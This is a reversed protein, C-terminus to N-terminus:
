LSLSRSREVATKRILRQVSFVKRVYVRRASDGGLAHSGTAWPVFRRDPLMKRQADDVPRPNSDCSRWAAVATISVAMTATSGDAARAPAGVVQPLPSEAGVVQARPPATRARRSADPEIVPRLAIARWALVRAPRPNSRGRAQWASSLMTRRHCEM